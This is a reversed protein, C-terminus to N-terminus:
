SKGNHQIPYRNSENFAWVPIEPSMKFHVPGNVHPGSKPNPYSIQQLHNFQRCIAHRLKAGGLGNDLPGWM